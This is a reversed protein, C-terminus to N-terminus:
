HIRVWHSRVKVSLIRYEGKLIRGTLRSKDYREQRYLEQRNHDSREEDEDRNDDEGKRRGDNENWESQEGAVDAREESNAGPNSADGDATAPMRIWM